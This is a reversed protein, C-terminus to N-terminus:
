FFSCMLISSSAYMNSLLWSDIINYISYALTVKIQPYEIDGLYGILIIPLLGGVKLAEIKKRCLVCPRCEKQVKSLKKPWLFTQMPGWHNQYHHPHLSIINLFILNMFPSILFFFSLATRTFDNYLVSKRVWFFIVDKQLMNWM